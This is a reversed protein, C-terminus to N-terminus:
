EAITGFQALIEPLQALDDDQEVLVGNGGRVILPELDVDYRDGVVITESPTAGAAELAAEFPGWSPKSQLVTDLGIVAYFLDAVGLVDLTQKGVVVPNNTIAILCFAPSLKELTERLHPDPTLFKSPDILETRWAVSLKIPIGLAVFVNGLSPRRADRREMEERTKQVLRRTRELTEGRHEALRDILVEIQHDVYETNRYLTNDIDFLVARFRTGDLFTKM